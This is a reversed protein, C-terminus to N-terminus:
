SEAREKTRTAQNNKIHKAQKMKFAILFAILIYLDFSISIISFSTIQNISIYIV